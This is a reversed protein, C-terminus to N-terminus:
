RRLSELPHVRSASAAVPGSVLACITIAVCAPAAWDAISLAVPLHDIPYVETHLPFRYFHLMGVSLACVVIGGMAGALGAFVGVAEFIWFKRSSTAGLSGLIALQVRKQRILVLLAGVLTSSAVLVILALVLGIVARMQRVVAVMSSHELWTGVRYLKLSRGRNLEAELRRAVHKAEGGDRLRAEIGTVRREGFLVAQAASLHILVLTEDFEALGTDVLDTVEFEARRPPGGIADLSGDIAAPVVVAVRDGRSLGLTEALRVGLTAGPLVNPNAPRLELRGLVTRADLASFRHGEDPDLGKIMVIRPNLQNEGERVPVLAAMGYAFPAVEVVEPDARLEAAVEEYEDFDLGYKTVLVHGNIRAISSVLEREFGSGVANVTALSAVGLGIGIVSVALMPTLLRVVIAVFVLLEGVGFAVLAWPARQGVMTSALAVALALGGVLGMWAVWAPAAGERRVLRGAVLPILRRSPGEIL